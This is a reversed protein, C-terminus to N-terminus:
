QAARPLTALYRHLVRSIASRLGEHVDSIVLKM